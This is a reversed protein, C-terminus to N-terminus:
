EAAVIEFGYLVAGDEAVLYVNRWSTDEIAKKATELFDAVNCTM